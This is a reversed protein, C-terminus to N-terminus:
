PRTSMDTRASPTADAELDGLAFQIGALFFANFEEVMFAAPAHGLATYFVRGKGHRRIWSLIYDNDLRVCRSCDRGQNMDTREVDISMLVRVRDRSLHGGTFRYFEDQHVFPKGGFAATLPSTPDDIRITAIETPARHSGEVAGLIERFEPWDMSAHSTGHYGALGGGERVFRALGERVDPDVFIMGVTNNLFVADFKRIRDYKFNELDNSFVPEYAGTTKGFQEVVLNAAPISRHGGTAGGYGINADFILLRKRKTPMAAPQQPVAAVIRERDEPALRDPGRIPVARALQAVRAAAVPRVAEEFGDLSQSLDTMADAGGSTDVIIVPSIGKWRSLAELVHAIDAAGTGLTVRRGSEGLADLDSLRVALLRDKLAALGELPRIGEAMWRGIDAYAGIRRSRGDLARAVVEPHGSIAVNVGYEAALADALPLAEPLREVVLTEVDLAKAFAFLKRTIAEDGSITPTVYVPMQLRLATMRDRVGQIEGPALRYDLPKRIQPSVEQTSSGEVVAVGLADANRAAHSFMEDPFSRLSVGVRWGLIADVSTRLRGWPPTRASAEVLGSTGASGRGQRASDRADTKAATQGAGVVNWITMSALTVLVAHRRMDWGRTAFVM